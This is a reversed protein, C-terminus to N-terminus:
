EIRVVVGKLYEGEPWTPLVRHCPAQVLRREIHFGRGLLTVGSGVAEEFEDRGVLQSCSFTILLGGRTVAAAGLRNLERYGRLANKVSSKHKAFAPPDLVVLDFREDIQKLYSFCDECVARHERLAVANLTLNRELGAMAPISSDVSVVGSAGGTLAAISFGGTYCFCNLVRKGASASRVLKRSERQDLFFGTKQGREWDVEFFLGNEQIVSCTEDAPEAGLYGQWAESESRGFISYRGQLACRLADAVEFRLDFMCSNNFEIVATRGYLDVILGPLGDAEANVLRFANTHESGVLGLQRRYEFAEYFRRELFQATILTPQFAFLRVAISSNFFQGTALHKGTSALVDVVVGDQPRKGPVLAGSFIWPHGAKISRERGKKLVVEPYPPRPFM